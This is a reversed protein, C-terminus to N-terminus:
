PTGRREAECKELALKLLREACLSFSEKKGGKTFRRREIQTVVDRALNLSKPKTPGRMEDTM